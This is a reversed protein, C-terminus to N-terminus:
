SEPVVFPSGGMKAKIKAALGDADARQTFHGVRVRYLGGGEAVHPKFGATQLDAVLHDAASKTKVAGVQVSFGPAGAAPPPAAKPVAKTTDARTTEAPQAALATCRGQYFSLQNKLEINDRASALGDALWRCGDAPKRLDFYARAGWYSAYALLPSGPYDARIREVEKATGAPNGEAYDQM